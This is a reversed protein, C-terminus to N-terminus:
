KSLQVQVAQSYRGACHRSCFPGSKNKKLNGRVQRLPKEFPADCLPCVGKFMETRASKAINDARTLLEFNNLVDNTVDEDVHDVTLDTDGIEGHEQEYLFRAYSKTTLKGDRMRLVVIKRGDQKRVYPGYVKAIEM